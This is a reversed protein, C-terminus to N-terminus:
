EEEEEEEEYDDRVVRGTLRQIIIKRRESFDCLVSRGFSEYFKGMQKNYIEDGLLNLLNPEIGGIEYIDPIDFDFYKNLIAIYMNLLEQYHEFLEKHILIYDMLECTIPYLVSVEPLTFCDSGFQYEFIKMIELNGSYLVLRSHQESLSGNGYFDNFMLLKITPIDQIILILSALKYRGWNIHITLRGDILMYNRGAIETFTIHFLHRQDPEADALILKHLDKDFLDETHKVIYRQVFDVLSDSAKYMDFYPSAIIDPHYNKVTSNNDIESM